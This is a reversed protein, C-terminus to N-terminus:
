PIRMRVLTGCASLWRCLDRQVTKALSAFVQQLLIVHSSCVLCHPHTPQGSLDALKWYSHIHSLDYSSFNLYITAPFYMTQCEIDEILCCRPNTSPMHLHSASTSRIVQSAWYFCNLLIFSLDVHRTRVNVDGHKFFFHFRGRRSCSHQSFGANLLQLSVHSAFLYLIFQFYPYSLRASKYITMLTAPFLHSKPWIFSSYSLHHKSQTPSFLGSVWPHSFQSLHFHSFRSFSPLPFFLLFFLSSLRSFFFSASVTLVISLHLYLPLLLSPAFPLSSRLTTFSYTHSSSLPSSLYM